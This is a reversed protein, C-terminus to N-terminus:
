YSASRGNLPASCPLLHHLRPLTYLPMVTETDKFPLVPLNGIRRHCVLLARTELVRLHPRAIASRAMGTPKAHLRGSVRCPM